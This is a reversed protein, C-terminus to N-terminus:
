VHVITCTYQNRPQAAAVTFVASRIMLPDHGGIWVSICTSGPVRTSIRPQAAALFGEVGHGPYGPIPVPLLELLPSRIMLPDHGGIRSRQM